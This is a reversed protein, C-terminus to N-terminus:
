SRRTGSASTATCSRTRTAPRSSGPPPPDPADRFRLLEIAQAGLATRYFEVAEECRGHFFLYPQVHM